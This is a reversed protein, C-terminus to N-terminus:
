FIVRRVTRQLQQCSLRLVLDVIGVRPKLMPLPELGRNLARHGLYLDAIDAHLEGDLRPTVAVEVRGLKLNPHTQIV